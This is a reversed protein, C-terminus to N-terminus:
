QAERAMAVEVVFEARAEPHCKIKRARCFALLVDPDIYIREVQVGHTALELIAQQADKLWDEFTDQLGGGDPELQRVRDFTERSYWGVAIRDAGYKKIM